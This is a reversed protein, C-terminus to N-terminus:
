AQKLIVLETTEPVNGEAVTFSPVPEKTVGYAKMFEEVTHMGIFAKKDHKDTNYHMPIVYTPEISQIVELAKKIDLIGYIGAIPCLLVDVNGLKEIVQESLTHGLDGLHVICTNDIHIAYVINEGKEKGQENDHFTRQGFVSIGGVEYEGPASVIFPKPRRVTGAVQQIANHDFHQHSVTVIDASVSPMSFGVDKAYPDTVVVGQKGKLKFCSHGLYTIDM